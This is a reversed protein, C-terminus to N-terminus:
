RFQVQNPVGVACFWLIASVHFLVLMCFELKSWWFDYSGSRVLGRNDEVLWVVLHDLTLAFTWTWFLAMLCNHFVSANHEQGDPSGLSTFLVVSYLGLFAAHSMIDLMFHIQPSAESGLQSAGNPHQGHLYKFTQRAVDFLSFIETDGTWISEINNQM